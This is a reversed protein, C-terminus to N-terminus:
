SLYHRMALGFQILMTWAFLFTFVVFLILKLLPSVQNWDRNTVIEAAASPLGAFGVLAVASTIILPLGFMAALLGSIFIPFFSLAARQLGRERPPKSPADHDRDVDQKPSVSAVAHGGPKSLQAQCAVCRESHISNRRGCQPCQITHESRKAPARQRQNQREFVAGLLLAWAATEGIMRIASWMGIVRLLDASPQSQAELIPLMTFISGLLLLLAIGTLWAVRRHQHRYRVALVLGICWILLLHFESLVTTALPTNAM